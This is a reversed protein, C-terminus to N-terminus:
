EHERGGARKVHSESPLRAMRRLLDPASEGASLVHFGGQGLMYERLSSDFAAARMKLISLVRHLTGDLEVHRLLVVNEALVELATDAFDLEPGVPHSAARVFVVTVGRARLLEVFVALAGEHHAPSLVQELEAISDFAVLTASSREVESWVEHLVKDVELEVPLQRLISIRGSALPAEVDLGFARAKRVLQAQSERFSVLLGVEGRSAGALLYQLALLTKGAGSSGALITSSGRPLGGTMLADLQATGWPVRSEDPEQELPVSHASLRPYVSLGGATIRFVHAGLLPEAGRVKWARLTRRQREGPGSQALEVISDCMTFEAPSRSARMDPVDSSTVLTTCHLAGMSVALVNVFTRLETSNPHLDRLSAFGDLVLLSAQHGKVTDVLADVLAGVGERAVPLISEFYFYRGVLSDDWFSLTRLHKVLRSAPESLTSVFVVKQGGTAHHFAVQCALTTKGSGPAGVILVLDGVPLGGGLVRDLGPVGTELTERTQRMLASM